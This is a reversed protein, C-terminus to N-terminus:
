TQETWTKHFLKRSGTIVNDTSHCFGLKLFDELICFISSMQKM